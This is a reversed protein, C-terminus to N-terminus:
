IYFAEHFVLIVYEPFLFLHVAFIARLFPRVRENRLERVLAANEFISM